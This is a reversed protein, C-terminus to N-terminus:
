NNKKGARVCALPITDCLKKKDEQVIKRWVVSGGANPLRLYKRIHNRIQPFVFCIIKIRSTLGDSFKVAINGVGVNAAYDLSDPNLPRCSVKSKREEPIDLASYVKATDLPYWDAFRGVFIYAFLEMTIDAFIDVFM